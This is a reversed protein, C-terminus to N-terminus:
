ALPAGSAPHVGRWHEAIQKGTAVWVKDHRRVHELFRVLGTARGPRGILRDHLALSMLRPRDAGEAYLTDFCDIMYEAFDSATSFGRNQDFRNDNTEFSYPIVLYPKGSVLRWYPLEDNLSDRDYLLRGTEALLRRTNASPRGTMWGVPAVGCVQELTELAMRIHEREDAEPITPYDLWRYHHSVIEHGESVYARALESNRRAVCAVAFLCVKVDFELFLRLLRWGGVRSGYEFVSEVIPSRLGPYAPMGIDNLMSESTGDGDMVSREGGGEFNLNINLAIRADGPWQAHPLNKGYGVYDRDDIPILPLSRESLAPDLRL